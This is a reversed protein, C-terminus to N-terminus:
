IRSAYSLTKFPYIMAQNGFVELANQDYPNLICPMFAQETKSNEM